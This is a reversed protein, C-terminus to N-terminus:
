PGDGELYRALTERIAGQGQSMEFFLGEAKDGLGHECLDVGFISADSFLTRLRTRDFREGLVFGSMLASLRELNPDPSPTFSKGADNVGCLYRAYGAFLLPIFTLFSLDQRGGAVYAKLTEGFRVPLKKSTDCAIRQPTDPLFPNPFRREVVEDLFRRADIVEPNTVVPLGEDYGIKRILNVLLPDKMEESIRTHSLLCGFVALATHLPNLCTCVKMKEIRDITDKAGFLVGAKELPPRGNPFSDEIALMEFEEANVVASLPVGKSSRVIRVDELGEERLVRIVEESPGPTIKDIMTWPFSVRTEDHLYDPFAGDVLGCRAWNKALATMADKLVTGNHSCNDLSVLAVKGQGAEYRRFMLGTLVALTSLPAPRSAPDETRVSLPCGEDPAVSYGKETITLTVLQLSPQSFYGELRERAAPWSLVSAISAVVQKSMSGDGKLSVALTLYDHPSFVKEIADDDSCKVLVMGSDMFGAEILRQCLVAPFARVLNGTGFHLWLPARETRARVAPIDFQPTRYGKELFAGEEIGKLTLRM